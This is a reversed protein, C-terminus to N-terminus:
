IQPESALSRPPAMQESAQGPAPETEAPQGSFLWGLVVAILFGLGGWGLAAGLRSLASRNYSSRSRRRTSEYREIPTSAYREIPTLMAEGPAEGSGEGSGYGVFSEDPSASNCSSPRVAAAAATMLSPNALPKQGANVRREAAQRAIYKEVVVGCAGCTGQGVRCSGCRPCFELAKPQLVLSSLSPGGRQPTQSPSDVKARTATVVPATLSPGPSAESSKAQADAGSAIKAMPAVHSWLGAQRLAEAYRAATQRDINSKLLRRRGEVVLAAATPPPLNFRDGLTAVVQEATFRPRLKGSTVVKFRM